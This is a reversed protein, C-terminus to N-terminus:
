GADVRGREGRSGLFAEGHDDDANISAGLDSRGPKEGARHLRQGASLREDPVLQGLEHADADAVLDGDDTLTDVPLRVSDDAAEQRCSISRALTLNRTRRLSMVM